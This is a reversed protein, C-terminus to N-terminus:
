VLRGHDYHNLTNFDSTRSSLHAIAGGHSRLLGVRLDANQIYVWDKGHPDKSEPQQTMAASAMFAIMGICTFIRIVRGM